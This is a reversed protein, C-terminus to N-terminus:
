KDEKNLWNGDSDWLPPLPEIADVAAYFTETHKSLKEGHVPSLGLEHLRNNDVSFVTGDKKVVKLEKRVQDLKRNMWEIGHDIQRDMQEKFGDRRISLVEQQLENQGVVPFHVMVMIQVSTQHDDMGANPHPVPHPHRRELISCIGKTITVM